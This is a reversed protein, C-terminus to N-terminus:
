VKLHAIIYQWFTIKSFNDDFVSQILNGYMFYGIYGVICLATLLRRDRGGIRKLMWPIVVVQAPLFYNALRGFYNATGFLGTFMILGNLMAMNCLLNETRSAASFM